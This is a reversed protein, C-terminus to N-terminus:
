LECVPVYLSSNLSFALRTLHTNLINLNMGTTDQQENTDQGRFKSQKTQDSATCAWAILELGM